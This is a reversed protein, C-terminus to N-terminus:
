LCGRAVVGRPGRELQCTRRPHDLHKGDTLVDTRGFSVTAVGGAIEVREDSTSVDTFDYNVKAKIRELQDATAVGLAGLAAWDKHAWASRYRALWDRAERETISGAATAPAISTPPAMTAPPATAVQTATSPPPSAVRVTWRHAESRLGRPDVSVVEVVHEGPELGSLALRGASETEPRGGDVRWEFQVPRKAADASVRLQRTADPELTLRVDRPEVKVLRPPAQAVDVDWGVRKAALGAADRVEAEIRHAETPTETLPAQFHFAPADSVKRGDVFWAYALRDDRDPDTAKVRFELSEGEAMRVGSKAPTRSALTPPRNAPPPALAVKWSRPSASAGTADTVTVSVEADDPQPDRMTWSPDPGSQVVRGNRQWAYVLREGDDPDSAEVAFRQERGAELRLERSAPSATAITPARPVDAVRVEWRQEIRESGSSAKATVSRTHGGDNWGPAFSWRAGRAVERDDLRWVVTVDRGGPADALAEFGLTHGEDVALATGPSPTVARWALPAQSPPPSTAPPSTAAPSLTAPPTEVQEVPEQPPAPVLRWVVLAVLAAVGAAAIWASPRPGPTRV